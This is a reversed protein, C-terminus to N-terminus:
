ADPAQAEWETRRYRLIRRLREVDVEQLEAEVLDYTEEALRQAEAASRAGDAPFCFALREGLSEPALELEAVVPALAKLSTYYVRNLGLLVLLLRELADVLVRHALLPNGRAAFAEIRWLGEVQGYRRVMALRLAEPYPTAAERWGAVLEAGHLAT